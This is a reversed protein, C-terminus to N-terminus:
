AAAYQGTWDQHESMRRYDFNNQPVEFPLQYAGPYNQRAMYYACRLEVVEGVCEFPKMVEDIGLLGKFTHELQPKVFLNQHNFISALETPDVFPAFLLFSNACKPCEGCWTLTKNTQGQSYNAVNCSSFEKGYKEWAREAFLEAIRLEYYGRLPSGVRIDPSVAGHVHEALLKEATWTKSWQHNVQVDGIWAHPEDGEHGIAALITNENHLVADILAYALTIYTVPVHGNLGGDQSALALAQRDIDRSVSRVHKAGIKDIVAPYSSGSSIYMANFEHNYSKLLEALLLSDKGGSQLALIGEGEYRLTPSIHDGGSQFNPMDKPELGNEYMFQGLGERYVTNLLASERDTFEGSMMAVGRTPFCKYYSVGALLFALRLASNLMGKDYVEPNDFTVRETFRRTNDFSYRFTAVGNAEDFHYNEFIFRQYHPVTM